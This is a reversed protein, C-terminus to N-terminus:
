LELYIKQPPNTLMHNKESNDLHGEAFVRGIINQTLNYASISLAKLEYFHLTQKIHVKLCLKIVPLRADSHPVREFDKFCVKKEEM